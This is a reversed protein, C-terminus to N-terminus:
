KGFCIFLIAAEIKMMLQRPLEGFPFQLSSFLPKESTFNVCHVNLLSLCTKSCLHSIARPHGEAGDRNLM